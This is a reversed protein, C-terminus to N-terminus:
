DPWKIEVVEELNTFTTFLADEIRNITFIGNKSVIEEERIVNLPSSKHYLNGKAGSADIIVLNELAEIYESTKFEIEPSKILAIVKMSNPVGYGIYNNPYPYLHSSKKIINAIETNSFKPKAQKICAALGTIVPATFSTGGRSFCVIDPKPYDFLDSGISSISMKKFTSLTTAGVTLVGAADAPISVYKFDTAGENGAAIVLLIGKEDSAIQAAQTLPTSKGDIQFPKYNELPDDFGTSYGLSSNIIKIGLSDMWELAAVWYDEEGRFEAKGVDTKALYYNSHTALGYQTEEELSNGGIYSWVKTGHDDNYQESGGFALTGDGTFNKYGKYRDDWFIDGLKEEDNAGLFGRDIIGIDVGEGNLGFEKIIKGKIQELPKSYNNATNSSTIKINRDVASISYIFPLEILKPVVEDDLTATIANLWKSKIIPTIGYNQELDALFLQEIDLDRISKLTEKNANHYEQDKQKYKFYIWYKNQSQVSGIAFQFVISIIIYRM